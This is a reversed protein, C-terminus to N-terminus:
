PCFAWGNYRLTDMPGEMLHAQVQAGLQAKDAALISPALIPLDFNM